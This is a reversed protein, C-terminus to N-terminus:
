KNIKDKREKRTSKKEEKKEPRQNPGRALNHRRAVIHCSIHYVDEDDGGDDYHLVHTKM